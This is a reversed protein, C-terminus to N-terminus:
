EEFQITLHDLAAKWDRMPLTWKKSIRRLAPHFLKVLAADSPFAGRRKTLKRLSM